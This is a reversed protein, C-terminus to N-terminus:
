HLKTYLPAKAANEKWFATLKIGVTVSHHPLALRPDARNQLAIKNHKSIIAAM